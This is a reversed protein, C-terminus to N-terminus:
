CIYSFHNKTGLCNRFKLKISAICESMVLVKKTWWCKTLHNKSLDRLCCYFTACKTLFFISKLTKRLFNKCYNRIFQIDFWFDFFLHVYSLLLLLWCGNHRAAYLIFNLFFFALFFYNTCVNTKFLKFIFLHISFRNKRNHCTSTINKRLM